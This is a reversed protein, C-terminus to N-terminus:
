KLILTFFFLIFIFCNCLCRQRKCDNIKKNPCEFAKHGRGLCKFCKTSSHSSPSPDKPKSSKGEKDPALTSDGDRKHKDKWHSSDKNSSYKKYTSKRKLQQEITSSKHVLEEIDMFHQLEVVDKIDYNLGNLFRAIIADEDERTNSRIRLIEFDKYYDEVSKSGQKLRQLKQHLERQYHSPVYRKRLIAKLEDWDDLPRADCRRREKVIQDWWLLVHDKFELTALKVRREDRVDHAEFLQDMKLEWDLYAEPDSKGHFSPFKIKGGEYTDNHRQNRREHRHYDRHNREHNRHHRREYYDGHNRGHGRSRRSEESGHNDEDENSGRHRRREEHNRRRGEGENEFGDENQSSRGHHSRMERQNVLEERLANIQTNLMNTFHDM